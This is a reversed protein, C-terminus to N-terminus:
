GHCSYRGSIRDFTIQTLIHMGFYTLKIDEKSLNWIIWDGELLEGPNVANIGIKLVRGVRLGNSDTFPIKILIKDDDFKLETYKEECRQHYIKLGKELEEKSYKDIASLLYKERYDTPLEDLDLHNIFELHNRRISETELFKLEETPISTAMEQNIEHMVGKIILYLGQVLSPMEEWREKDFGVLSEILKHYFKDKDLRLM